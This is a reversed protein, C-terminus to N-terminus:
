KQNIIATSIKNLESIFKDYVKIAAIQLDNGTLSLTEKHRPPNFMKSYINGTREVYNGTIGLEKKLFAFNLKYLNMIALFNQSKFITYLKLGEDILNDTLALVIDSLDYQSKEWYLVADKTSKALEFYKEEKM